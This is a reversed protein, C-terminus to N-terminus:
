SNWHTKRQAAHRRLAVMNAVQRPAARKLGSGCFNRVVLTRLITGVLHQSVGLDIVHMSDLCLHEITFGVVSFIPAVFNLGMVNAADFFSLTAPFRLRSFDHLDTIAGNEMLRWGRKLGMEEIDEILALGPVGPDWECKDLILDLVARSPVRIRKTSRQVMIRYAEADRVPWVCDTMEEPFDFMSDRSCGCLFCPNRLNSWNRFGLCSTFELLDARYEVLGGVFGSALLGRRGEMPEGLHNTSPWQGASLQNLSWTLIRGVAGFTCMGRCGCKCLDNKRISCVMHREDSNLLRFYYTYFSDSKSHPVGDSYLSVPIAREGNALFVPHDMWCPPLETLELNIPDYLEPHKEHLEAFISHPLHMPFTEMTRCQEGADWLPIKANYFYSETKLQLAKQLHRYFNGGSQDPDLALDSVGHCGGNMAHHALTCVDRATYTGKKFGTLLCRRFGVGSDFDAVDIDLPMAGSEHVRDDEELLMQATAAKRAMIFLLCFVFAVLM